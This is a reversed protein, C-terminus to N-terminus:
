ASCTMLWSLIKQYAHEDLVGALARIEDIATPLDTILSNYEDWATSIEYDIREGSEGLTLMTYVDENYVGTGWENDYAQKALQLRAICGTYGSLAGLSLDQGSPLDVLLTLTSSVSQPTLTWATITLTSGDYTWGSTESGRQSVYTLSVGNLTVSNAPMVGVFSFEYTRTSSFIQGQLPNVVVQMRTNSLPTYTITTEAYVGNQYDDTEGDDEYLTTSGSATKYPFITLLLSTYAEKASGTLPKSSPLMPIVAGAKVFVPTEHLTYEKEITMPGTYASGTAWQIWTGEPIFTYKTTMQTWEDVPETIPSVLIDSGFMFQSFRSEYAEAEEPWDYFLPHVLSVGTDYAVKAHNYIYPVMQSRLAIADRMIQFNELPYIWIRRDNDPDKTCHTRFVPSWVGWQVWRTYLEAPCPETHGGIDHSWYGYLVNAATLTFYPQFDLSEWSPVVDGSFGMQYRHNGLGGWRHLIMGRNDSGVRQPNTFFVYNLMITPNPNGNTWQQWDLWFFDIGKDLVPQMVIDLFNFAFTSNNIDFPVYIQTAPDIGMATAM